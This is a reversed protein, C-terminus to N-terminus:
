SKQMKKNGNNGNTIFDKIKKKYLYIISVFFLMTFVVSYWLPIGLLNSVEQWTRYLYISTVVTVTNIIASGAITGILFKKLDMRVIGSPLSIFSRSVGFLQAFFVAGEGYRDVFKSLIDERNFVHGHHYKRIVAGFFYGMYYSIISGIATGLTAVAIIGVYSAQGKEVLPVSALIMSVGGFPVGMSELGMGIGIGMLGYTEALNTFFEILTSFM